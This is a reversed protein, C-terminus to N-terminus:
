CFSICEICQLTSFPYLEVACHRSPLELDHTRDWTLVLFVVVFFKSTLFGLYVGDSDRRSGQHFPDVLLEYVGIHLERRRSASFGLILVMASEPDAM